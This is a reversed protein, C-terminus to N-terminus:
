VAVVEAGVVASLRAGVVSPRAAVPDLASPRVLALEQCRAAAQYSM